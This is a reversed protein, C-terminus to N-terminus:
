QISGTRDQSEPSSCGRCIILAKALKTDAQKEITDHVQWWETSYKPLSALEAEHDLVSTVAMAASPKRHITSRKPQNPNSGLGDWALLSGATLSEHRIGESSACGGLALVISSLVLWKAM